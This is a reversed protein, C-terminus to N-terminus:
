ADREGEGEHRRRVDEAVDAEENAEGLDDDRIFFLCLAIAVVDVVLWPAAIGWCIWSPMGWITPVDQGDVYGTSACWSLTWVMAAAWLGIIVIAERRSHIFVPDYEPQDNM